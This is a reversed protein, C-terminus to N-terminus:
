LNKLAYRARHYARAALWQDFYTVRIQVTTATRAATAAARAKAVAVHSQTHELAPTAAVMEASAVAIAARRKATARGALSTPLQDSSKNGNSSSSSNSRGCRSPSGAQEERQMFPLTERTFHHAGKGVFKRFFLFLIWCRLIVTCYNNVQDVKV